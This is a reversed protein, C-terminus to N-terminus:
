KDKKKYQRKPKYEEKVPEICGCDFEESNIYKGKNMMFDCEYCIFNECKHCVKGGYTLQHCLAINYKSVNYQMSVRNKCKDCFLILFSKIPM